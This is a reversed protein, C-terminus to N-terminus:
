RPVGLYEALREHAPLYKGLLRNRTAEDPIALLRDPDLNSGLDGYKLLAPGTREPHEVFTSFRGESMAWHNMDTEIIRSIFDPYSEGPRKTVAEVLAAVEDDFLHAIQSLTLDTDEVTDHLVAADLQMPTGGFRQVRLMVDLPHLIYPQGLKDLQGEHHRTALIIARSLPM